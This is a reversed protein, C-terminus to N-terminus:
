ALTSPSFRFYPRYKDDGEDDMQKCCILALGSGGECRRTM